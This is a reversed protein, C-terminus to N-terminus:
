KKLWYIKPAKSEEGEYHERVYQERTEKWPYKGDLGYWWGENTNMAKHARHAEDETEFIFTEECIMVTIAIPKFGAKIIDALLESKDTGYTSNADPDLYGMEKTWEGYCGKCSTSRLPANVHCGKCLKALVKEGDKHVHGGTISPKRNFCVVCNETTIM